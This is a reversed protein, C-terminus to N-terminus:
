AAGSPTWLGDETIWATVLAAPTVDFAPNAVEVDAAWRVPGFGRVEEPPRQASGAFKVEERVFDNFQVATVYAPVYQAAAYGVFVVIVIASITRPSLGFM